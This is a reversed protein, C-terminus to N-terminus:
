PRFMRRDFMSLLIAGRTYKATKTKSLHVMSERSTWSEVSREFQRKQVSFDESCADSVLCCTYRTAQIGRGDENQSFVTVRLNTRHHLPHARM